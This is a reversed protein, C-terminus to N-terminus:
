QYIVDSFIQQLSTYNIIDHEGVGSPPEFSVDCLPRESTMCTLVVGRRVAQMIHGTSGCLLLTGYSVLLTYRCSTDQVAVSCYHGMHCQCHTGGHHTRYQWVATIDWIVSAIHVEIIHGTSGCQLLSYGMHCQCHTGGHHTRYQWVATIDWIISAIHVEM